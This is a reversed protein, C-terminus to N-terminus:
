GTGERNATWQTTRDIGPQHQLLPGDEPSTVVGEMKDGSITGGSCLAPVTGVVAFEKTDTTSQALAPAASAIAALAAITSLNKKNLM